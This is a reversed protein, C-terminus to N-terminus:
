RKAATNDEITVELGGSTNLVLNWILAILAGYIWGLAFAILPIVIIGGALIGASVGISSWLGYDYNTVVAAITVISGVIGTALAVIANVTGILRGISGISVRSIKVNRAM